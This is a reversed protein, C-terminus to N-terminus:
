ICIYINTCLAVWEFVTYKLSTLLEVWAVVVMGGVSAVVRGDAGGSINGRLSPPGCLSRYRGMIDNTFVCHFGLPCAFGDLRLTYM